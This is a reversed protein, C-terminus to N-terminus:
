KGISISSGNISITFGSDEENAERIQRSVQPVAINTGYSAFHEVNGGLSADITHSFGVPNEARLIPCCMISDGAGTLLILSRGIISYRGELNALFSVPGDADEYSDFDGEDDITM